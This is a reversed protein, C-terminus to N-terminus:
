IREPKGGNRIGDPKTDPRNEPKPPAVPPKEDRVISLGKLISSM